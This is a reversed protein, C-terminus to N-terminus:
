NEACVTVITDKSVDCLRQQDTLKEKLDEKEEQVKSLAIESYRLTQKLEDVEALATVFSQKAQEQKAVQTEAFLHNREPIKPTHGNYYM